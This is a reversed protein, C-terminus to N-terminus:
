TVRLVSDFVFGINQFMSSRYDLQVRPHYTQFLRKLIGQEAEPADALPPTEAAAAFFEHCFDTRGIWAGGNLYRFDSSQAGPLSDEFRKFEGHNPWNMRDASFVMECDFERRFRELILRPHEIFIADRSDVGAVFRTTISALADRTLRPKDRSNVWNKVGQGLVLCPVGLHDLSKELIGMAEHGNNWTLITLEPIPGLVRRPSGFFKEKIPQWYPKYSHRGQAHIVVPTTNFLLNVVM